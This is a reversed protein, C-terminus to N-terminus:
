TAKADLCTDNTEVPIEFQNDTKRSVNLDDTVSCTFIILYLGRPACNTSINSSTTLFASM